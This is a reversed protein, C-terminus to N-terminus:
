LLKLLTHKVSKNNDLCYLVLGKIIYVFEVDDTVWLNKDDKPIWRNDIVGTWFLNDDKVLSYKNSIDSKLITITNNDM